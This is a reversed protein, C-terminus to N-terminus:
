RLYPNENLDPLIHDEMVQFIFNMSWAVFLDKQQDLHKYFFRIAMLLKRMHTAIEFAEKESKLQRILDFNQYVLTAIEMLSDSLKRFFDTQGLVQQEDRKIELSSYLFDTILHFKSVPSLIRDIDSQTRM